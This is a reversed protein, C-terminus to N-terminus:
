GREWAKVAAITAQLVCRQSYLMLLVNKRRTIRVALSSLQPPPSPGLSYVYLTCHLSLIRQLQADFGAYGLRAQTGVCSQLRRSTPIGM